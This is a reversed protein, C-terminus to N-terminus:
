LPLFRNALLNLGIAAALGFLVGAWWAGVLFAFFAGPFVALMACGAFRIMCGPTTSTIMSGHVVGTIQGVSEAEVIMYIAIGLYILGGIIDQPRM